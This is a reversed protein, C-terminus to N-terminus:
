FTIVSLSDLLDVGILVTLTYYVNQKLSDFRTFPYLREPRKVYTFLYTKVVNVPLVEVEQPEDSGYTECNKLATTCGVSGPELPRQNEVSIM